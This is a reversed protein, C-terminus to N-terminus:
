TKIDKTDSNKKKESVKYQQERADFDKPRQWNSALFYCVSSTNGCCHPMSISGFVMEM